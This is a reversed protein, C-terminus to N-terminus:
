KGPVKPPAIPPKGTKPDVLKENIGLKMAPLEVKPKEDEIEQLKIEANKEDVGELEMVVDKKSKIGADIAQILKDQLETDDIPLGDKWEIEPKVPEKQLVKGNVTLNNAKAFVQARYILEKIAQDYYLRKRQTKAITRMLKFKLARGSDSTGQGLGLIDPSIEATLYLFDVLKEVETFASQLSADWVIYEPKGNEGEKIEIVGLAKKNVQGKEDIVGQPVMLIPDGHKDLINDIKSLRNNLAYFLYDLDHYDSLGFHRDGTKWNPVHIVLPDDINTNEEAQLDLGVVSPAVEIIIRDGQMEYIKNYIKGPEHSEVRLYLKDGYTFTWKLEIKKPEARVNFGDIDPFYLKPNIDECIVTSEEEANRPGARLKFLADGQYSNGLASEYCQIDMKNERWFNDVWEQDGNPVKITPPESFLMDAMIKSLLGAFNVVLYRLRAYARNYRVDDIKIRFAEFHKGLFLKRYYEYDDLRMREKENPFMGIANPKPTNDVVEQKANATAMSVAVNVPRPYNDEAM